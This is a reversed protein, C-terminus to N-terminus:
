VEFCENSCNRILNLVDNSGELLYENVLHQILQRDDDLVVFKRRFFFLFFHIRGKYLGNSKDTSMIGESLQRRHNNNNNNNNNSNSSITRGSLM